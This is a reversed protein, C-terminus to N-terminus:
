RNPILTVHYPNPQLDYVAGTGYDFLGGWIAGPGSLSPFMTGTHTQHGEKSITVLLTSKREASITCPSIASLGNSFHVSAGSPTTNVSVEQTTGRMM